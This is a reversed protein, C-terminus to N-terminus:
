PAIPLPTETSMGPDSYRPDDQRCQRVDSWCYAWFRDAETVRWNIGERRLRVLFPRTEDSSAFLGGERFSTELVRVQATEGTVSASDVKLTTEEDDAGFTWAYEDLDRQLQALDRPRGPLDPDLYGLVREREGRRVALLYNHVTAEPSGEPRYSEVPRRLALAFAVAALLLVGAVIALLFRDNSAM